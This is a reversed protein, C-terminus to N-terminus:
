CNSSSWGEENYEYPEVEEDTDFDSEDNRVILTDEPGLQYKSRIPMYQGSEPLQFYFSVGNENAVGQALRISRRAANLLDEIQTLAIKQTEQIEQKTM